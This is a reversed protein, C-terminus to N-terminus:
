VGLRVSDIEVGENKPTRGQGIKQGIKTISRWRRDTVLCTIAVHVQVLSRLGLVAVTVKAGDALHCIASPPPSLCVTNQRYRHWTM